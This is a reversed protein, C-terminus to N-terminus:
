KGPLVNAQASNEHWSSLINSTLKQMKKIERSAKYIDTNLYEQPLVELEGKNKKISVLPNKKDGKILKLYNDYIVPCKAELLAAVDPYVIKDIMNLAWYGTITLDVPNVFIHNYWDIDIICGHITGTGGLKRIEESISQQISM